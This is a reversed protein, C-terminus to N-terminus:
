IGIAGDISQDSFIEICSLRFIELSGIPGPQSVEDVALRGHEANLRGIGHLQDTRIAHDCGPGRMSLIMAARRESAVRVMAARACAAGDKSVPARSRIRPHPM